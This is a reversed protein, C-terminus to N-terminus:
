ESSPVASAPILFTRFVSRIIIVLYGRTQKAPVCCFNSSLLVGSNAAGVPDELKWNLWSCDSVRAFLPSAAFFCFAFLPSVFLSVLRFLPRFSPSALRYWPRCLLRGGSTLYFLLICFSIM